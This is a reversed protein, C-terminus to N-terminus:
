RGGKVWESVAAQRPQLGLVQGGALAVVVHPSFRSGHIPVFPCLGDSEIDDLKILTLYFMM